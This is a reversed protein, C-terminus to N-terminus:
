TLYLSALSQTYYPLPDILNKVSMSIIALAALGSVIKIIVVRKENRQIAESDM